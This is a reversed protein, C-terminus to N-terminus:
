DYSRAILLQMKSVACGRRLGGEACLAGDGAQKINRWATRALRSARRLPM